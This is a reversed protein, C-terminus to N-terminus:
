VAKEKEKRTGSSRSGFYDLAWRIRFRRRVDPDLENDVMERAWHLVGDFISVVNARGNVLKVARVMRTYLEDLDRSKQLRTFRLESMRPKDRVEQSPTALQRSFSATEDNETVHAIIGAAAAVPLLYHETCWRRGLRTSLDRFGESLLADAPCEARRLEARRGAYSPGTYGAAPNMLRWWRRLTTHDEGDRFIIYTSM